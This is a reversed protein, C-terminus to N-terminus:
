KTLATVLSRNRLLTEIPVDKLCKNMKFASVTRKIWSEYLNEDQKLGSWLQIIDHYLDEPESLIEEIEQRHSLITHVIHPYPVELVRGDIEKCKGGATFMDRFSPNITNRKTCLWVAAADFDKLIINDFLILMESILRKKREKSFGDRIVEMTMPTTEGLWWPVENKKEKVAKVKYYKRILEIKNTDKRFDDYPIGIKNFITDKGELEMDILYRPSHTVAIEKLVNQYPKCKFKPPDGGLNGFLMYINVVDEDRTSEMISSGTSTWHNKETSKVEVGYYKNAIIDPFTHGSVLKVDDVTFPTGSCMEKISKESEKEFLTASMKKFIEPHLLSLNNMYDETKKMLSAFAEDAQVVDKKRISIINEEM